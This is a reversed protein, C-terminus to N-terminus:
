ATNKQQLIGFTLVQLDRNRLQDIEGSPFELNEQRSELMKGPSDLFPLPSFYTCYRLVGYKFKFPIVITPIGVRM